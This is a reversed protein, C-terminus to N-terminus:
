PTDTEPAGAAIHQRETQKEPMTQAPLAHGKETKINRQNQNNLLLKIDDSRAATIIPLSLSRGTTSFHKPM